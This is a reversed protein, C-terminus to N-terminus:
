RSAEAYFGDLRGPGAWFAPSFTWLGDWNIGAILAEKPTGAKVQERARQLLTALKGRFAMVEARTMPKDGHGPIALDWDLKLVHDLSDIWGGISAGGLYDFNPTAANLEDGTSVVKFQPFYVITDDDTHARGYHLLRVTKSGLHILYTRDYTVDPSAPATATPNNPPPTFKALELPMNKQGVVKVGAALFRATNGTHDGHHHTVVLWRVPQGGSVSAVAGMLDDYIAQGNNKSDVVVVGEATVLVTSNGGAGVVMYLNPKVPKIALPARAPPAPAAPTQASAGLALGWALTAGLLILRASRM